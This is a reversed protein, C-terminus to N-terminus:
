RRPAADRPENLQAVAKSATTWGCVENHCLEPQTAAFALRKANENVQAAWRQAAVYAWREGVTSSRSRPGWGALWRPRRPGTGASVLADRRRKLQEVARELWVDAGPLLGMRWLVVLLPVAMAGFAARPWPVDPACEIM